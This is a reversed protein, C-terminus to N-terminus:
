ISISTGMLEWSWSWWQFLPKPSMVNATFRTINDLVRVPDMKLKCPPTRAGTPLLLYPNPLPVVVKSGKAANSWSKGM